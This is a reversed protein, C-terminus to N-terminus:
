NVWSDLNLLKFTNKIISNIECNNKYYERANKSIFSLFDINNIVEYYRKELLEAHSKNGTRYLGMDTPRPISIYHYNPILNNYFVSEYEFRIIPVGTAFCEIDRYCFEGRGDISLALKHNILDNFYIDAIVPSFDTIIDKNIHELISRDSISTGKFYMKTETPILTLRRNFYPELDIVQAQFYSWPSYKYYYDKVHHLVKKPLFQSILVKKLYPNERENLIAHTLDDAVSLIVFESNELNEIVYECEMLLFDERASSNLKVKYRDRNAFEFYRNEEVEFITKLYDTFKDWFLNYYRYYRTHENCPNHIKIKTM